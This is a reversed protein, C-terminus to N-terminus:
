QGIGLNQIMQDVIGLSQGQTPTTRPSFPVEKGDQEDKTLIQQVIGEEDFELIVVRRETLRNPNLPESETTETIYYWRNENFTGVASPSGLLQQVENRKSLGPQIYGVQKESVIQGHTSTISSCGWQAGTAVLLLIFAFFHHRNM